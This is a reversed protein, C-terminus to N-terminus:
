ATPKGSGGRFWTVPKLLLLPLGNLALPREGVDRRTFGVTSIDHVTSYMQMKYKQRLLTGTSKRSYQLCQAQCVMVPSMGLVRWDCPRDSVSYHLSITNVGYRSLLANLSSFVLYASLFFVPLGSPRHALFHNWRNGSDHARMKYKVCLYLCVVCTWM